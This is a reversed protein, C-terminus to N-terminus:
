RGKILIKTWRNLIIFFLKPYQYWKFFYEKHAAKWMIFPWAYWNIKMEINIALGRNSPSISYYCGTTVRQKREPLRM